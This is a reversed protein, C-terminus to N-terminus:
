FERRMNGDARIMGYGWIYLTMGKGDAYVEGDGTVRVTLDAPPSLPAQLVLADWGPADRGNLAGFAM